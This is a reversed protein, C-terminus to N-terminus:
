CLINWFQHGTISKEGCIPDGLTIFAVNKGDNLLLEIEDANEEWQKKLVEWQKKLVEREESLSIMPFNMELVKSIDPIHIKVINFAISPSGMKKTPTIILDATALIKAAKITILDPDGPGVGIGYFIGKKGEAMIDVM